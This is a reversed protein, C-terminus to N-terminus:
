SNAIMIAAIEEPTLYGAERKQTEKKLLKLEKRIWGPIDPLSDIDNDTLNELDDIAHQVRPKKQAVAMMHKRTGRGYESM